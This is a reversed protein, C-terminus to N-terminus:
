LAGGAKAAIMAARTFARDMARQAKPLSPRLWPRPAMKVTGFELHVGYDQATGAAAVGNVARAFGTNRSLQGTQSNPPKGPKSPVGGHNRGLQRVMTDALVAAAATVGANCAKAVLRAFGAPDVIEVRMTM